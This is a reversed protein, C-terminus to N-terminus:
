SHPEKVSDIAFLGVCEDISSYCGHGCLDTRM